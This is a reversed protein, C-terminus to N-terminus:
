RVSDLVSLITANNKIEISASRGPTWVLVTPDDVDAALELGDLRAPVEVRFKESDDPGRESHLLAVEGRIIRISLNFEAPELM